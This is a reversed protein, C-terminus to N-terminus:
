RAALLEDLGRGSVICRIAEALLPALRVIELRAPARPPSDTVLEQAEEPRSLRDPARGVFLGHTAPVTVDPRSGRALMADLAADV